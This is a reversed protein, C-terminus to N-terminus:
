AIIFGSLLDIHYGEMKYQIFEGIDLYGNDLGIM